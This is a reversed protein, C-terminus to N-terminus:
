IATRHVQILSLDLGRPIRTMKPAEGTDRRLGPLVCHKRILKHQHSLEARLVDSWRWGCVRTSNFQIAGDIWSLMSGKNSWIGAGTRQSTDSAMSRFGSCITSTISNACESGGRLNSLGHLNRSQNRTPSQLRGPQRCSGTLSQFSGPVVNM